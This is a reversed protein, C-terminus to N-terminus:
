RVVISLRSGTSASWPQKLTITLRGEAITAGSIPIPDDGAYLAADPKRGLKWPVVVVRIEARRGASSLLDVMGGQLRTSWLHDLRVDLQVGEDDIRGTVSAWMQPSLMPVAGRGTLASADPALTLLGADGDYSCGMTRWFPAWGQTSAHYADGADPTADASGPWRAGSPYTAGGVLAPFLTAVIAGAAGPRAPDVASATGTSAVTLLGFTPCSGAPGKGPRALTSRASLFRCSRLAAVRLMPTAPARVIAAQWEQTVAALAPRNALAFRAVATANEFRPEYAHGVEDGDPRYLRPTHWAVVFSISRTENPLVEARLAVVGAPNTPDGTEAANTFAGEAAFQPWWAPPATADWAAVSCVDTRQQREALVALTGRANYAMRNDPATATLPASAMGLGEQGEVLPIHAISGGRRLDTRRGAETAGLGLVNEFSLLAAAQVPRRGTNLLRVTVFCAPLASSGIDNPAIASFAELKWQLKPALEPLDATAFPYLDAFGGVAAAPLGHPVASGLVSARAGADSKAWVALFCGPGAALPAAWNNTICLPGFSGDPRLTVYGCGIGGMPLPEGPPEQRAHAPRAGLLLIVLAMRRFASRM